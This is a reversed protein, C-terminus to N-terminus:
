QREISLIKSRAEDIQPEDMQAIGNQAKIESLEGLLLAMSIQLQSRKPRSPEKQADDINLALSSSDSFDKRM